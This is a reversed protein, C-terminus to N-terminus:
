LLRFKRDDRSFSSNAAFCPFHLQTRGKNEYVSDAYLRLQDNQIQVTVGYQM